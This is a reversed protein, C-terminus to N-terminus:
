RLHERVHITSNAGNVSPFVLTGIPSTMGVLWVVFFHHLQPDSGPRQNEGARQSGEGEGPPEQGRGFVRAPSAANRRCSAWISQKSCGAERYAPPRVGEEPLENEM